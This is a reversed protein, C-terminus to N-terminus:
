AQLWRLARHIWRQLGPMRMLLSLSLDSELAQAEEYSLEHLPDSPHQHQQQQEEARESSAGAAANHTEQQEIGGWPTDQMRQFDFRNTNLGDFSMRAYENPTATFVGLGDGNINFSM